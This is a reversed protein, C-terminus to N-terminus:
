SNERASCFRLSSREVWVDGWEIQVDPLIKFIMAFLLTIVGLSVFIELLYAITEGGPIWASLQESTAAVTASVLLSALLLFCIGLVIMFSTFRGKLLGKLGKEKPKVEWITNLADQLETFVGSAGFLLVAVGIASAAIGGKQGKMQISTLVAKAMTDGILSGLQTQLRDTINGSYVFGLVGLSIMLLPPISFIAYYALAAGLRPGKQESWKWFTEKLLSVANQLKMAECAKVLDSPVYFASKTPVSNQSDGPKACSSPRAFGRPLSRGELFYM